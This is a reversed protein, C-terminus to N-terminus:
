QESPRRPPPRRVGPGQEFLQHLLLLVPDAPEAALAPLRDPQRALRCRAPLDPATSRVVVIDGCGRGIVNQAGSWFQLCTMSCAFPQFTSRTSMMWFIVRRSM